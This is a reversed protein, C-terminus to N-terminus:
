ESKLNRSISNSHLTSYLSDNLSDTKLGGGIRNLLFKTNFENVLKKEQKDLSSFSCKKYFIRTTDKAYFSDVSLISTKVSGFVLRDFDKIKSRHTKIRKCIDQAQGIYLVNYEDFIMMYIGTTEVLKSLDYIEKFNNNKVLKNLENNFEEKNLSNFYKMNLDFNEMCDKYHKNVFEITYKGVNRYRENPLSTFQPYFHAVEPWMEIKKLAHRMFSAENSGMDDTLLAYNERNLKGGWKIRCKVGFHEITTQPINMLKDKELESKCGECFYFSNKNRDKLVINISGCKYCKM